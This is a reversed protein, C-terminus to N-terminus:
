RRYKNIIKELDEKKDFNGILFGKVLINNANEENLGRTKLYFIDEDKFKGVYAGHSAKIDYEDIFLNPEIKSNNKGLTIIKNDQNLVSKTSGKKITGNNKFIIKNDDIALGHLNTESHTNKENHFINIEYNNEKLSITSVNLEVYSSNGNLNITINRDINKSVDFINIKVNANEELNFILKNEADNENILIIKTDINNKINIQKDENDKLILLNSDLVINNM